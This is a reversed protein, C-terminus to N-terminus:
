GVLTWYATLAVAYIAIAPVLEKMTDAWVWRAYEVDDKM